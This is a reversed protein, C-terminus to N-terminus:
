QVKCRNRRGCSGRLSFPAAAPPPLSSSKIGSFLAMCPRLTLLGLGHSNSTFIRCTSLIYAFSMMGFVLLFTSNKQIISQWIWRRISLVKSCCLSTEPTQHNIKRRGWRGGTWSGKSLLPRSHLLCSNQIVTMHDIDSSRSILLSLFTSPSM